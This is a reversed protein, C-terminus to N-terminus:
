LGLYTNGKNIILISLIFYQGYIYGDRFSVNWNSHIFHFINLFLPHSATIHYSESLSVHYKGIFM